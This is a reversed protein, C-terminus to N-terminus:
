SWWKHWLAGDTGQVFVDVRGHGWSVAAPASNLPGGLSEPGYWSPYNFWKHWLNNDTGRWFVNLEGSADSSVAPASTLQGGLSEWGSWSMKTNSATLRFSKFDKNAGAQTATLGIIGVASSIIISALVISLFKERM